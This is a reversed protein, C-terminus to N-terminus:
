IYTGAPKQQQLKVEIGEIEEETILDKGADPWDKLKVKVNGDEEDVELLFTM